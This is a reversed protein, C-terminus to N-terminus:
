KALSPFSVSKFLVRELGFSLGPVPPQDVEVATIILNHILALVCPVNGSIELARADILEIVANQGSGTRRPLRVPTQDSKESTVTERRSEKVKKVLASKALATGSLLRDEVERVGRSAPRPPSRAPTNLSSPVKRAVKKAQAKSPKIRRIAIASKAQVQSAKMKSLRFQSACKKKDDIELAKKLKEVQAHLNLLPITSQPGQNDTAIVQQHHSPKPSTAKKPENSTPIAANQPFKRRIPSAFVSSKLRQQRRSRSLKVVKEKESLDTAQSEGSGEIKEGGTQITQRLGLKKMNRLRREAFQRQLLQQLQAAHPGASNGDSDKSGDGHDPQSSVLSAEPTNKGLQSAEAHQYRPNFCKCQPVHRFRCPLCLRLQSPALIGRSLRPSM